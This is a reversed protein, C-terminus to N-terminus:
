QEFLLSMSTYRDDTKCRQCVLCPIKKIGNEHYSYHYEVIDTISGCANCQGEGYLSFCWRCPFVMKGSMVLPLISVDACDEYSFFDGIVDDVSNDLVAAIEPDHKADERIVESIKCKNNSNFYDICKDCSKYNRNKVCKECYLCFDHGFDFTVKNSECNKCKNIFSVKAHRHVDICQQIENDHSESEHSSFIGM